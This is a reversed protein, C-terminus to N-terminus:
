KTDSDTETITYRRYFISLIPCQHFLKSPHFAFYESFFHGIAVKNVGYGLYIERPDFDHTRSTLGV